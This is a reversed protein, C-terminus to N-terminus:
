VATSAQRHQMEAQAAQAAQAVQEAQAAGPDELPLPAEPTDAPPRAMSYKSNVFRTYSMFAACVFGFSVFVQSHSPGPSPQAPLHPVPVPYRPLSIPTPITFARM